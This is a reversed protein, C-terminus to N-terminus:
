SAPLDIAFETGMTTSSLLSLRGRHATVLEHAIALGLGSGGRRASGKFPEFLRAVIQAPIGPGSDRVVIRDEPGRQEAEIRIEGVLGTSQIAEAANRVLNALVRYLQEQDALVLFDAPVAIHCRAMGHEPGLGLNEVVEEVLSLLHVQRLEPDSEAATGYRLTSHCLRIARDLSGILKPLIRAVLPDSSGELRDAMLQGTALMNRLDHSIRALAAGLAALRSREKLARLVDGQMAALAREAAAVEGLRSHPVIVRAADEPDEQFARVNDIVRLLPGVVFRRVSIFVMVATILSLILSLKLIRWGYSWMADRLPTAPLTIELLDFDKYSAPALVRIVDNPGSNMGSIADGILNGLGMERLDYSATVPNMVGTNLVLARTGLRHVVVNLTGSRALYEDQLAQPILGDPAVLMTLAAIEARVVRESLYDVRFRAVSPVFIAVEVIMVVLITLVLLRGSLGRFLAM